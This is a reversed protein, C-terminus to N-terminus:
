DSIPIGNDSILVHFLDQDFSYFSEIEIRANKDSFKIANSLLNNVVQM